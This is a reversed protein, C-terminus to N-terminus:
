NPPGNKHDADRKAAAGSKLFKGQCDPCIGHSFLADTHSEVYVEIKEWYGKDDRVKKCWACIPLLGKLTNIQATLQATHKQTALADATAGLLMSLLSLAVDRVPSTQAHPLGCFMGVVQKSIALAHLVGHARADDPGAKFFVPSNERLARAFLRSRIERQVHDEVEARDAAPM